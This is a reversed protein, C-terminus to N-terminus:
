LLYHGDRRTLRHRNKIFNPLRRNQLKKGIPGGSLHLRKQQTEYANNHTGIDPGTRSGTSGSRAKTLILNTKCSM